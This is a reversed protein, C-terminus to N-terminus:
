RLGLQLGAAIKGWHGEPDREAPRCEPLRKAREAIAATDWARGGRDMPLYFGNTDVAAAIFAALGSSAIFSKLVHANMLQERFRVKRLGSSRSSITRGRRITVIHGATM